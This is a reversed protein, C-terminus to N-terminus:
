KKHWGALVLDKLSLSNGNVSYVGGKSTLVGTTGNIGNVVSLKKVKKLELDIEDMYYGFQWYICDVIKMQPYNISSTPSSTYSPLPFGSATGFDDVIRKFSSKGLKKIMGDAGLGAQLFRDYAPICGMTGMIIKTILTDTPSVSREEYYIKLKDVLGDKSFILDINHSDQKSDIWIKGWLNDYCPDWLINIIADKHILYDKQLLQSSGRYMGWSALYFALHLSLLDFNPSNSTRESLFFSYCHEWSHYRQNPMTLSNTFETFFFEAQRKNM